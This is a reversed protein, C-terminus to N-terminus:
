QISTLATGLAKADANSKAIESMMMKAEKKREKKENTAGYM